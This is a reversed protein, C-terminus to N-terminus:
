TPSTRAAWRARSSRRSHRESGASLAGGPHAQRRPLPVLDAPRGHVLRASLSLGSRGAPRAHSPQAFDVPGALRGSLPGRRGDPPGDGRRDARTRRSRRARGAARCQHPWPGRDRRRARPLGGGAGARLRVDRQQGAGGDAPRARRLCRAHVLRRGPQRLRAVRLQSHRAAARGAGTRRGPGRRLLFAGSQPRFLRRAPPRGALRLRRPRAAARLRLPRPNPLKM